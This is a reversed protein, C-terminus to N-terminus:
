QEPQIISPQIENRLIIAEGDHLKDWFYETIKQYVM